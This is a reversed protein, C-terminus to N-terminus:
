SVKKGQKQREKKGKAADRALQDGEEARLLEAAARESQQQAEQSAQQAASAAQQAASAAAAAARQVQVGHKSLIQEPTSHCCCFAWCGPQGAAGLRCASRQLCTGLMQALYRM